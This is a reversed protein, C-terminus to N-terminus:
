SDDTVNGLIIQTHISRLDDISSEGNIIDRLESKPREMAMSSLIGVDKGLGAKTFPIPDGSWCMYDVILNIHKLSVSQASRSLENRLVERAAEIGFIKHIEEVNNTSTFRKIVNAANLIELFETGYCLAIYQKVGDKTEILKPVVHKLGEIGRIKLKLIQFIVNIVISGDKPNRSYIDIIGLFSPSPIVKIASYTLEILNAVEVCSIDYLSMKKINMIIRIGNPGWQDDSDKEQNNKSDKFFHQYWWSLTKKSEINIRSMSLKVDEIIIHTNNNRFKIVDERTGNEVHVLATKMKSKKMDLTDTVLLPQDEIHSKGLKHFSSLSSQTAGAM